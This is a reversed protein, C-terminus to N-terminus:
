LIEVDGIDRDRGAPCCADGKRLRGGKKAEKLPGLLPAVKEDGSKWVAVWEGGQGTGTGIRFHM